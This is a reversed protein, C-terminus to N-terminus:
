TIYNIEQMFAVERERDRQYNFKLNAQTFVRETSIKAAIDRVILSVFAVLFRCKGSGVAKRIHSFHQLM